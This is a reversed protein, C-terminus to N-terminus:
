LEAIGCAGFCQDVLLLCCDPLPVRVSHWGGRSPDMGLDVPFDYPIFHSSISTEMTMPSGWFPHQKIEHFMGFFFHIVQPVGM